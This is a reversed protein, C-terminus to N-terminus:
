SGINLQLMSIYINKIYNDICYCNVTKNLFMAQLQM